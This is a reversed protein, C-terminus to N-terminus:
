QDIDMRYIMEMIVLSEILWFRSAVYIFHTKGM